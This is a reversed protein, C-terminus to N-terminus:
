VTTSATLISATITAVGHTECQSGVRLWL